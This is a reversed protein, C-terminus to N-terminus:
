ALLSTSPLSLGPKEIKQSQNRSASTRLFPKTLHQYSVVFIGSYESAFFM